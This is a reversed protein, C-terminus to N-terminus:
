KMEKIKQIIEAILDELDGEYDYSEGKKRWGIIREKSYIRYKEEGVSLYFYGRTPTTKMVEKGGLKFVIGKRPELELEPFESTIRDKVFKHAERAKSDTVYDIKKRLKRGKERKEKVPKIHEYWLKKPEQFIKRLYPVREVAEKFNTPSNQSSHTMGHLGEKRGIKKPELVEHV